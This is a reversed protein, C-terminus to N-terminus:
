SQDVIHGAQLRHEGRGGGRHRGIQGGRDGRGDRHDGEIPPERQDRQDDQRRRDPAGALDGQYAAIERPGPLLGHRPQM